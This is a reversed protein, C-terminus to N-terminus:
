ISRGGVNKNSGAVTLRLIHHIKQTV